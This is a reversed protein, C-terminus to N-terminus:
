HSEMRKRAWRLYSAIRRYASGMAVAADILSQITSSTHKLNALVYRSVNRHLIRNLLFGELLYILILLTGMSLGLVLFPVLKSQRELQVWMIVGGFVGFILTLVYLPKINGGLRDDADQRRIEEAIGRMLAWQSRTVSVPLDAGPIMPPVMTEAARPNSQDILVIDPRVRDSQLDAIPRSNPPIHQPIACLRCKAYKGSERYQGTM